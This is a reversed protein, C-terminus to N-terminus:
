HISKEEGPGHKIEYWEKYEKAWKLNDKDKMEHRAMDKKAKKEFNRFKPFVSLPKLIWFNWQPIEPSPEPPHELARCAYHYTRDNDTQRSWYRAALLLMSFDTPVVGLVRNAYEIASEMDKKWEYCHALMSLAFSDTENEEVKGKYIEIATDYDKSGVAKAAKIDNQLNL